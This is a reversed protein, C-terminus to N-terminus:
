MAVSPVTQQERRHAKIQWALITLISVLVLAFLAFGNGLPFAEYIGAAFFYVYSLHQIRKWNQRLLRQSFTNSTVLLIFGAVDGMHAFFAYHAFSFFAPSFLMELYTSGPLFIKGLAIGVIIAASLIGLGKRLIVLRKLGDYGTIDALPRVSMVLFAAFFSLIFLPGQYQNVLTGDFLAGFFPLAVLFGLGMGIFIEQLRLIFTM